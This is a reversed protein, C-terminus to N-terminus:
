SEIKEYLSQDFMKKKIIVYNIKNNECFSPIDAHLVNIVKETSYSISFEKSNTVVGTVKCDIMNNLLHLSKEGFSSSGIFVINM